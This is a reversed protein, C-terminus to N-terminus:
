LDIGMQEAIRRFDENSYYEIIIRGRHAGKHRRNKIIVNTGLAEKFKKELDSIHPDKLAGSVRASRRPGAKRGYVIEETQRVSLGERVIREALSLQRKPDAVALLCRAHGMSLTERSVYEKVRPPLRLLRLMNAVATRSLGLREAVAEQTMGYTDMLLKFGEAKEIPNLDERQVNEVIATELAERDSMQREIAPIRDLGARKAARWRREGAVIENGRETKRFLIPQIVGKERISQVLEELSEESFDKRPQFSNPVLSDVPITSIGGGPSASTSEAPHLAYMGRATGKDKSLISSLKRGIKAM